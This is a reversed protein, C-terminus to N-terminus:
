YNIEICDLENDMFDNILNKRKVSMKPTLYSQWDKDKLWHAKHIKLYNNKLSKNIVELFEESLERNVILENHINDQTFVVCNCKIYDKVVSEVYEVNVFKGNSLKYNYSNRGSYFLFGDKVYGGDGTKYWIKNDREVLVNKTASPDNWYGKMVNPGSVQIEDNIIEVIVDDIIRGVSEEDRPYEMHNVSVMPSLETCGYGECINYGNKIFFEKTSTQLKAGGVFITKLNKGLVRKLILPTLCNIFPGELFDTKAKILELIRPVVYLVDPNIERLEKVFTDRSTCLAMKNNFLINYYLECTQSYIHAWPLINLSTTEPMRSFLSRTSYINSIINENSLMVGKPKGTTGSTYILSSIDNYVYELEKGREYRYINSDITKTTSCKFDCSSDAVLISAGSDKLVHNCYEDSQGTYMPVWIGGLSNCAINWALWEISNEGKYAVRDGKSVKEAKLYDQCYNVSNLLYKKDKWIWRDNVKKGIISKSQNIQLAKIVLSSVTTKM